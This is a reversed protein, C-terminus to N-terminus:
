LIGIAVVEVVILIDIVAELGAVDPILDLILKIEVLYVLGQWTLKYRSGSAGTIRNLRGVKCFGSYNILPAIIIDNDGHSVTLVM